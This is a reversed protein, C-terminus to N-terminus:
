RGTYIKEIEEDTYQNLQNEDLHYLIIQQCASAREHSLVRRVSLLVEPSAWEHRIVDGPFIRGDGRMTVGDPPIPMYRLARCHTADLQEFDDPNERRLTGFGRVIRHFDGDHFLLDWSYVPLAVSLPLKYGSLHPLYPKLLDETLISCEEDIQQLNGLNYVMLAGYDVPPAQMQLQHLRITASLRVANLSNADLAERVTGLLAFYRMQNSRAWDFDVQLERLAGLNNQEMMANVRRAILRPLAALGTTDRMIDHALFVVPIVEVGQPPLDTVTLTARPQLSGDAARVVDFLHLYMKRVDHREMWAREQQSLTLEQRWYYVANTPDPVEAEDSCCCLVPLSILLTLWSVWKVLKQM